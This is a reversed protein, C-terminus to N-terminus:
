YSLIQTQFATWFHTLLTILLKNVNSPHSSSEKIINLFDGFFGEQNQKCNVTRGPDRCKNAGLFCGVFIQGREHKAKIKGLM